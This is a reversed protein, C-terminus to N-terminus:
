WTRRAAASDPRAASDTRADGAADGPVYVFTTDGGGALKQLNEFGRATIRYRSGARLPRALRVVAVTDPLALGTDSPAAPGAAQAVVDAASDEPARPETVATPLEPTLRRALLVQVDPVRDPIGLGTPAPETTDAASADATDRALVIEVVPVTDATEVQRVTVAARELGGEARIPEDFALAVSTSDLSRATLLVPPTTDPEVLLLELHVSDADGELAFRISDHPELARDLSLNGNLDEFGYATYAGPPVSPLRFIGEGGAVATYPVTDPPPALFVARGGRVPEGTARRRVRGAVRTDTVPPGTSFVVSITDSSRNGLVDTFPPPFAFRYVASRWGGEPRITFESFGFSITYRYAPSATMNRILGRNEQIPEDFRVRFGDDFGPQVSGSDPRFDRVRPPTQDLEAGPPPEEKACGLGVVMAAALLAGAGSRRAPRRRGTTRTPEREASAALGRWPM